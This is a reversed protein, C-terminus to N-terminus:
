KVCSLNPHCVAIVAASMGRHRHRHGRKCPSPSDCGHTLGCSPHRIHTLGGPVDKIGGIDGADANLRFICGFSVSVNASRVPEDHVPMRNHPSMPM